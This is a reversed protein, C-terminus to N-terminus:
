YLKSLCVALLEAKDNHFTLLYLNKVPFSTKGSFSKNSFAAVNSLNPYEKNPLSNFACVSMAFFCCWPNSLAKVNLLSLLFTSSDNLM